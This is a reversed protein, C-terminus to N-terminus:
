FTKLFNKENLSSYLNNIFKDSTILSTLTLLYQEQGTNGTNNGNHKGEKVYSNRISVTTLLRM